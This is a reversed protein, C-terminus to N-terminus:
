CNDASWQTSSDSPVYYAYDRCQNEDICKGGVLASGSLCDTCVLGDSCLQDTGCNFYSISGTDMMM